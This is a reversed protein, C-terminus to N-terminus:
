LSIIRLNEMFGVLVKLYTLYRNWLLFMDKLKRNQLCLHNKTMMGEFFTRKMWGIRFFGHDITLDLAGRADQTTWFFCICGSCQTPIRLQIRQMNTVPMRVAPLIECKYIKCLNYVHISYLFANISKGVHVSSVVSSHPSVTYVMRQSHWISLDYKLINTTEVHIIKDISYGYEHM